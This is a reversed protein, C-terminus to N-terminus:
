IADTLDVPLVPMAGHCSCVYASVRVAFRHAERISHGKLIAACFSATFSDGAGVTDAVNVQPTEQFSVEDPTIVYSGKTGCTLILIKLDFMRIIQDCVQYIDTDRIALMDKVIIIEEDNIKLINCRNMSDFLIEKTYYQLRLNIDFIIWSQQNKKVEDIFRLITQRSEPSRQALSGFCVAQTSAATKELEPTFPIHDWAVNEHIVYTPVGEKDLLIDVTGTPYDVEALQSFLDKELFM